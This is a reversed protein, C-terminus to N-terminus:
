PELKTKVSDPSDDRALQCLERSLPQTSPGKISQTKWHSDLSPLGSHLNMATGNEPM